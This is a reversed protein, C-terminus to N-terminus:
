SLFLRELSISWEVPFIEVTCCHAAMEASASSENTRVHKYFHLETL